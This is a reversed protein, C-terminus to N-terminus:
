SEASSDDNSSASPAPPFQRFGWTLASASVGIFLGMVALSISESYFSGPWPAGVLMAGINGLAKGSDFAGTDTVLANVFGLQTLWKEAYYMVVFRMFFAPVITFVYVRIVDRRILRSVRTSEAFVGTNPRLLAAHTVFAYLIAYYLGPLVAQMGVYILLTSGGHPAIFGIGAERLRRIASAGRLTGHEFYEDSLLVWLGYVVGGVTCMWALELPLRLGLSVVLEQKTQMLQPFMTTTGWFILASPLLLLPVWSAWSATKRKPLQLAFYLLLALSVAGSVGALTGASEPNAEFMEMLSGVKHDLWGFVLGNIVLVPLMIPAAVVVVKMGNWLMSRYNTKQGSM